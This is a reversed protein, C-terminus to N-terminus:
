RDRRSNMNARMNALRNILAHVVNGGGIVVVTGLPAFPYVVSVIGACFFTCVGTDISRSVIEYPRTSDNTCLEYATGFLGLAVCTKLASLFVQGWAYESQSSSYCNELEKIIRAQTAENPRYYFPYPTSCIMKDCEVRAILGNNYSILRYLPNLMSKLEPKEVRFDVKFDFLIEHNPENDKSKTSNEKLWQQYEAEKKPDTFKTDQTTKQDSNPLGKTPEVSFSRLQVCRANSGFCAVNRFGRVSTRMMMSTTVLQSYYCGADM